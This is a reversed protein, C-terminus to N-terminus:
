RSPKASYEPTIAALTSSAPATIVVRELQVVPLSAVYAKDAVHAGACTTIALVAVAVAQIFFSEIRDM